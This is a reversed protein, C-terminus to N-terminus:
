EVVVGVNALQYGTMDSYTYPFVLGSVLDFEGTDPDLRYAANSWHSPSWVYGQHDISIGRGYGTDPNNNIVPMPFQELLEMTEVDIAVISYGAVWMRDGSQMCGAGGPGPEGAGVTWQETLPDFRSVKENCIWPRGEFDVTMGYAVEPVPWYDHMFDELRVNVLYGMDLQSAWMNGDGDVAAGYLGFEYAGNPIEPIPVVQEVAGTQGNLLLVEVSNPVGANTGSTWLMVDEYRCTDPNFNGQTWAVPRQSSYDGPTYWEVCGDPWPRIDNPGTSTNNPDLCESARARIMTVGGNRNAVAMDGNLNVSTRSPNGNGDPRTWYRGEEQMTQTNIKSVTGEMSNAVWLYSFEFDELCPNFSSDGIPGLDWKTGGTETETDTDTDTEPGDVGESESDTATTTSSEQSSTTSSSDAPGSTEPVASPGEDRGDGCGALALSACGVVLAVRTM